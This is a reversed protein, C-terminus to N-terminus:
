WSKYMGLEKDAYYRFRIGYRRCYEKWKETWETVSGDIRMNEFDFLTGNIYLKDGKFSDITNQPIQNSYEDYCFNNFLQELRGNGLSIQLKDEKKSPYCNAKLIRAPIGGALCGSPIDQNVLSMVSIVVNSGINALVIANPIWVNSGISIPNSKSPFGDLYSLYRGHTYVHTNMGLGVESGIAVKKDINVMSYMGMHLWDDSEFIGYKGHCGGGGIFSYKDIWCETGLKIKRGSIEVNENIISRDGIILEEDINFTVNDKIIVSDGLTIEGEGLINIKGIKCNKFKKIISTDM